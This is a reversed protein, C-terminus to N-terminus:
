RRRQRSVRRHRMPPAALAGGRQERAKERAKLKAPDPPLLAFRDYRLPELDSMGRVFSLARLGESETDCVYM